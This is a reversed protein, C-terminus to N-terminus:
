KNFNLSSVGSANYFNAISSQLKDFETQGNKSQLDIVEVKFPSTTVGIREFVNNAFDNYYKEIMDGDYLPLGEDDTPIVLNLLKYNDLETKAKMLAKTDSIEYIDEFLNALPPIGYSLDTNAKLVFTRNPDLEQWKFNQGQSKYTNYKSNFEESYLPLLTLNSDFFSFDFAICFAGNDIRSSVRCYDASLPQLMFSEKTSWVYNYSYDERWATTFADAFTNAINMTELMHDIKLYQTKFKIPDITEKNFKSPIIVYSFLPACAFFQVMRKYYPNTNYLFISADRLNKENKDPAELYKLVTAKDYKRFTRYNEIPSTLDRLMLKQAAAYNLYSPTAYRSFGIVKKENKENIKEEV